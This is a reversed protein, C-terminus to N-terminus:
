PNTNQKKNQKTQIKNKNKKKQPPTTQKDQNQRDGRGM